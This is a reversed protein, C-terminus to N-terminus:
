DGTKTHIPEYHEGLKYHTLHHKINHRKIEIWTRAGIMIKVWTTHHNISIVQGIRRKGNMVDTFVYVPRCALITRMPGLMKARVM